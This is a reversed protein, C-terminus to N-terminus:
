YYQNSEIFTKNLTNIAEARRGGVYIHQCTRTHTHTNIHMERERERYIIDRETEICIYICLSLSNSLVTYKHIYAYREIYVTYTYM